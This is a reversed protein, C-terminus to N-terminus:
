HGSFPWLLLGGCIAVLRVVIIRPTYISLTILVAAPYLSLHVPLHIWLFQTTNKNRQCVLKCDYVTVEGMTGGDQSSSSVYADDQNQVMPEMIHL